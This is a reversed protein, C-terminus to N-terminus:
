KFPLIIKFNAGHYSKTKFVFDKNKVRISGKLLKDVIQQTMYLGIGTGHTQHKTTFYPEFVRNLINKPIGGGNDQVEIILKEKEVYTKILILKQNVDVRESLADRANNLINILAQVLENELSLIRIDEIDEIIIINKSKFQVNILNLTRSIIDKVSFESFENDKPKFFSRFDEITQSLYKATETINQLNKNITKSDLIGLENQVQTGTATSTILSLPQRWQHAINGLMEGMSALKSQQFLLAEKQNKENELLKRKTIDQMTGYIKQNDESLQGRCDIWITNKDKPRIIRYVCAHDSKKNITNNLSTEFTEWDDPHMLKKLFAPSPKEKLEDIGLINLIEDSWYAEQNKIDLKWDGISATRQAKVLTKHKEELSSKYKYFSKEVYRSIIHSVILLILILISSLIITEKLYENYKIELHNQREIIKDNIKDFNFGTGIVWNWEKIWRAYSIKKNVNEEKFAYEIFKGNAFMEKNEYHQKFGEISKTIDLGILKEYKHSLVKGKDNTIFIYRDDKYRIKRVYNLIKNKISDEFDDIYEGTGIFWDYPEFKKFFGVKKYEKKKDTSKHWYWDYFTESKQSLIKNMEQLLLVGKLDKYNWLSKGEIEPFDSNLINTGDMKYIFFYGRGENNRISRLSAKIIDTIEEKTKKNKYKNFIRYAIEYANHVQNRLDNKLDNETNEKMMIMSQAISDIWLQIEDKEDEIQTTIILNKEAEINSKHEKYVLISIVITLLLIFISPSYKIINVLTREKM